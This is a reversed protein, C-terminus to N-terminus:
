GNKQQGEGTRGQESVLTRLCGGIGIAFFLYDKHSAVAAMTVVLMLVLRSAQQEGILQVLM